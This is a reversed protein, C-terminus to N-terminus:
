KYVNFYEIATDLDIKNEIDSNFRRINPRWIGTFDCKCCVYDWFSRYELPIDLYWDEDWIDTDRFRKSM